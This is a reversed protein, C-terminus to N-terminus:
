ANGNSRVDMGSLALGKSHKWLLAKGNGRM